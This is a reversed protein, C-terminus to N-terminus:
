TGSLTKAGLARALGSIEGSLEGMRPQEIAKIQDNLARVKAETPRMEDLLKDRKARLPAAKKEIDSKEKQLKDFLARTANTEAM